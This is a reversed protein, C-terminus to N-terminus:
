RYSAFKRLRVRPLAEGVGFNVVRASLGVPPVFQEMVIFAERPILFEIRSDGIRENGDHARQTAGGILAGLPTLWM